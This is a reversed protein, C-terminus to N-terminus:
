IASGADHYRAAVVRCFLVSQLNYQVPLGKRGAANSLNAILRCGTVKTRSISSDSM